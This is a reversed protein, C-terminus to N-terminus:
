QSSSHSLKKLTLNACINIYKNNMHVKVYGAGTFKYAFMM